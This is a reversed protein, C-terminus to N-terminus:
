RRTRRLPRRPRPRAALPGPEVAPPKPAAAEAAQPPPQPPAMMVRRRPRGDRVVKATWSELVVVARWVEPPVPTTIELVEVYKALRALDGRMRIVTRQAMERTPTGGDCGSVAVAAM